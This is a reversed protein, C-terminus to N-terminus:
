ASACEFRPTARSFSIRDVFRQRAEIVGQRQPRVKGFRVGVATKSLLTQAPEGASQRVVIARDRHPRVERLRMMVLRQAPQQDAIKAATPLLVFPSPFGPLEVRRFPIKHLRQPKSRVLDGALGNQEVGLLTKAIRDLEATVRRKHGFAGRMHDQFDLLRQPLQHM